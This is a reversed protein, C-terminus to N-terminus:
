TRRQQLVDHHSVRACQVVKALCWQANQSLSRTFSLNHACFRCRHDTTHTVYTCHFCQCDFVLDFPSDTLEAPLDSSLIDALVFTASQTSGQAAAAATAEEVVEPVLDVGVTVGNVNSALWRTTTGTGCGLEVARQVPAGLLAEVVSPGSQGGASPSAVMAVLQSAPRGSDWPAFGKKFFERWKALQAETLSTAESTDTPSVPTAM